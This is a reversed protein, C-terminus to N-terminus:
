TYSKCRWGASLRMVPSYLRRMILVMNEINEAAKEVIGTTELIEQARGRMSKVFREIEEQTDALFYGHLNDSLILAGERRERAIMLRITRENIGTVKVLHKLPLAAGQGYSLIDSIKM